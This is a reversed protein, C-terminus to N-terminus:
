MINYVEGQTPTSGVVDSTIPVSQMPLQLDLYWVIVAVIAEPIIIHNNYLNVSKEEVLLVSQWLIASINNLTANLVM